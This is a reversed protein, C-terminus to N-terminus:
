LTTSESFPIAGPLYKREMMLLSSGAVSHLKFMSSVTMLQNGDAGASDSARDMSLLTITLSPALEVSM